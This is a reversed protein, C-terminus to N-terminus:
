KACSNKGDATTFYFSRYTQRPCRSFILSSPLWPTPVLPFLSAFLWCRWGATEHKRPKQKEGDTEGNKKNKKSRSNSGTNMKVRVTLLWLYSGSYMATETGLLLCIQASYHMKAPAFCLTLGNDERRQPFNRLWTRIFDMSELQLPDKKKGVRASTLAYM